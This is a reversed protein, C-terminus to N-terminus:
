YVGKVVPIGWYSSYKATNENSEEWISQLAFSRPHQVIKNDASFPKLQNWGRSFTIHHSDLNGFYYDKESEIGSDSWKKYELGAGMSPDVPIWGVKDVYFECWWHSQTMLDPGVLIGGDTLAPIEAARLLATFMVAFDYADGKANSLLDLPDADNNRIQSLVEYNTCMYDYILRAKKYANKERGIISKVLALVAENDSPVLNDPRVAKALLLKNTEKYNGIKDPNIQTNVEYVPLVFTQLFITKPTNNRTKTIQHILDNQYNMLIPAPTTETIEVTPQSPMEFPIPCRFTITSVDNTVVDAIDASYQVLYIKKNVFKKKGGDKSITINKPDSKEKGTDVIVVGSSAGDPVHVKIETNTWSVYDYDTENAAIMFETLMNINKIDVSELNTYDITFLVKSQGKEDGFNNGQISLLEGVSVKESSLYTIVPKSVQQVVPVPVPIDVENAFLAPKSRYDKIGVVVLGDQVTAPLVIRICSDTWSIYSSATLKAGAIEVYSMDRVAGFNKGQIVVVDGPAGVPPTISHIEPIPKTKNNILFITSLVVAIIFVAIGARLM